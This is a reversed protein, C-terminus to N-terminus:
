TLHWRRIYLMALHTSFPLSNMASMTLLRSHMLRQYAYINLLRVKDILAWVLRIAAYTDAALEAIVVIVVLLTGEGSVRDGINFGRVESGLEVVEGVYEHGVIMLVDITQQSWEDWHYIHMDTGCIATTRIKILLDNPGIEPREADVMWIGAEARIKSLAKM